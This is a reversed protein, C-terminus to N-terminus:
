VRRAIGRPGHTSLTPMYLLARLRRISDLHFDTHRGDNVDATTTVRDPTLLSNITKEALFMRDNKRCLNAFKIWM